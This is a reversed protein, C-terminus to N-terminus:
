DLEIRHRERVGKGYKYVLWVPPVLGLAVFGLLTNGWGLGLTKYMSGGAMPLFAGVLSRTATLAAVASAAHEVFADIMYTQVPVFVGMLGVGIPIMGIIPVIWHAGKDASWGYWFLGVPILTAFGASMPLRMEPESVGNNLATLKRLTADSTSGMIGIGIFFGLGIGLYSLGTIEPAWSYEMAFVLPLSTFLLYLIGYVTALYTCMVAAIPSTFILKLPRMLGRKLIQRPTRPPLSVEYFSVLEQNGTEVRLRFTKRALLVHPNTEKNFIFIYTTVLGGAIFLVWYVWRWGVRQALFGGAIPGVVPGFLPGLAYMASARGREEPPFLDSVFGGGITLCGSGGIGALLRFLILCTINPAKACGIQWVVFFINAADLVRRRGYIESLPSLFLPGVAWGLVFSSVVFSSLMTSTNHFEKDMISVGPAFMSSALPSVFTIMSVMTLLMMRQKQPWNRPNEPDDLSEWGIINRSLDTLPVPTGYGNKETVVASQPTLSCGLGLGLSETHSNIAQLELDRANPQEPSPKEQVPPSSPEASM